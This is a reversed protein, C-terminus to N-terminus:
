LTSIHYHTSTSILTGIHSHVSTGIFCGNIHQHPLTNIHQNAAPNPALNSM